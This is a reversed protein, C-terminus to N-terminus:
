AVAEVAKEAEPVRIEGSILKPLLADRLNTLTRSHSRLAVLRRHFGVVVSAFRHRLGPPPSVFKIDKLNSVPRSISPVGTSSTNALLAHQGAPSKFFHILFEPEVVDTACRLYFQRQSLIYREYAAGEPILSVQGITGAHTFVIDGPYVNSRALRDAHEETIFKNGDDTLLLGHLHKGSIVPIGDDVFTSVKINSGFPGMAVQEAVSDIDRVEWGKPIPGLETEVMESEPVGDFDIFWSKFIAQAMDELTRNMKRNLEIKDDLGGLVAAIRRQEDVGTDPFPLGRAAGINFHEQVSGVNRAHVLHRGIHSNLYYALFRADVRDGPRIVVLDSCNAEGLWEPVVAATGPRGTRAVVVDGATIRSKRLKEHFEPSIFMLDDTSITYPKVNLTRLFPVGSPVYKDAMPGVWGVTIDDVLDGLSGGGSESAM